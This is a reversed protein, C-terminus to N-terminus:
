RLINARDALLEHSIREFDIDVILGLESEVTKLLVADLEVLRLLVAFEVLQQVAQLEVLDDDEDLASQTRSLKVLEQALAVEGTNCDVGTNTLLLPLNEPFRNVYILVSGRKTDLSVLLELFEVLTNTNGGVDKSSTDVNLADVEGDVVIERSIGVRVQM